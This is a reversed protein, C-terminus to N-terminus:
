APFRTRFHLRGYLIARVISLPIRDFKGAFEIGDEGQPTGSAGMRSIPSSRRSDLWDELQDAARGITSSLGANM